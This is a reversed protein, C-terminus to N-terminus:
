EPDGESTKERKRHVSARLAGFMAGALGPQGSLNSSHIRRLLLVEPITEMTIGADSARLFWDADECFKHHEDFHGIRDLVTKRVVLASPLLCPPESAFVYRNLYPHQEMGKTLLRMRTITYGVEPHQLLFYMQSSLKRPLWIDDADLFAIFEGCAAAIGANRAGGLGQNSQYHYRVEPYSRAVLATGDTSGDDVVIVEIPRYDQRFISDLAEPLLREGNFVPLITSVLPSNEM